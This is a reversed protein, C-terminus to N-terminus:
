PRKYLHIQWALTKRLAVRSFGRDHMIREVDSTSHIYMRYDSDYFRVFFNGIRGLLRFLRGDRPFVLGVALNARDAAMGLLEQMLPYCCIVRDLSVVDGGLSSDQQALEVFDGHIYRTSAENGRRRSEDRSLDIYASAGDVQIAERLDYAFLEHQIVGVGGGIDLLSRQGALPKLFQLLISTSRRPGFWRYSRLERRALKSDFVREIGQCQSCSM